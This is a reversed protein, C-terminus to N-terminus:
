ETRDHAAETRTNTSDVMAAARLADSLRGPEPQGCIEESPEAPEVQFGLDVFAVIVEWLTALFARRDADSMDPADLLDQYREVDLTLKPYPKPPPM